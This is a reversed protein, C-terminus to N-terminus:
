DIKQSGVWDLLIHVKVGGRARESLAEVFEEGIKGSWYIYTEFTITHRASRVAELMAPFIEDGNLLTQVKNGPLMPPGLLSGMTREFQADATAYLHAIPKTVEKETKHFVNAALVALLAGSVVLGLIRPITLKMRM